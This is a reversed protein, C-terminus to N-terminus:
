MKIKQRKTMEAKIDLILVVSLTFAFAYGLPTRMLFLFPELRPILKIVTACIVGWIISFRPCIYGFINGAELTYDWLRQGLMKDVLFGAAFEVITAVAMSLVILLFFDGISGLLLYCLCIGVGYIPCVPGKALGRNEFRGNKLIHFVVEACWGLFSFILFYLLYDYM